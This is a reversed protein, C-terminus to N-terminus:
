ARPLTFSFTSGKGEESFVAITGGQLEVLAKAIALGLGTGPKKREYPEGMQQFRHFLLHQRDRPIGRGEDKVSFRVTRHEPAATVIVRGGEPSFKVANSILNVLVQVTRDADGRVLPLHEDIPTELRVGSDAAFQAIASTAETVADIPRMPRPHVEMHGAEIKSLDLIDNVIRILRETNRLSAANLQARAAADLEDGQLSLLQLSGRLSTLPTRLEHNVISVFEDKMRELDRAETVDNGVAVIFSPRGDEGRLASSVWAILQRAGSRTTIPV